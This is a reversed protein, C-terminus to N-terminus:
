SFDSFLSSGNENVRILSYDLPHLGYVQQREPRVRIIQLDAESAREGLVRREAM